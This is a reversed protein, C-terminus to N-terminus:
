LLILDDEENCIPVGGAKSDSDSSTDSASDLDDDSEWESDSSYFAPWVELSGSQFQRCLGPLDDDSYYPCLHEKGKWLNMFDEPTYYKTYRAKRPTYRRFESVSQGLTAIVVDWTDGSRSDGMFSFSYATDSVSDGDNDTWLPDAGCQVLYVLAEVQDSWDQNGFNSGSVCLHLCTEGNGWRTNIDFGRQILLQFGSKSFRGGCCYLFLPSIQVEFQDYIISCQLDISGHIHNLFSVMPGLCGFAFACLIPPWCDFSLTPDAGAGLLVGYCEQYDQDDWTLPVEARGRGRSFVGDTFTGSWNPWGRRVMISRIPAFHDIDAGHAILFQCMSTQHNHSAYQLLSAGYKDHDRLSARGSILLQQLELVKGKEVLEFVPSDSPVIRNIELTPIKIITSIGNYQEEVTLKMTLAVHKPTIYLDYCTSTEKDEEMYNEPLLVLDTPEASPKQQKRSRFSLHVDDSTFFVQSLCRLRKPYSSFADDGSNKKNQGSFSISLKRSSLLAGELSRLQDSIVDLHDREGLYGLLGFSVQQFPLGINQRQFVQSKFCNVIYSLEYLMDKKGSLCRQSEAFYITESHVMACLGSMRGQMNALSRATAYNTDAVNGMSDSRKFQGSIIRHPEPWQQIETPGMRNLRGQMQCLVGEMSSLSQNISTLAGFTNIEEKGHTSRNAHLAQTLVQLEEQLKFTTDFQHVQLYLSLQTTHSTISTHITSLYRESIVVKVRKWLKGLHRENEPIVLKGLKLEHKTLDSACEQLHQRLESCRAQNVSRSSGLVNLIAGLKQVDRAVRTVVEPGDKIASLVKFILKASQVGITVVAIISAGADM